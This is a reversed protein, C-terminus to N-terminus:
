HDDADFAHWSACAIALWPAIAEREGYSQQAIEDWFHGQKLVKDTEPDTEEVMSQIKDIMRQFV